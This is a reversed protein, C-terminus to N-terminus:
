WSSYGTPRGAVSQRPIEVVVQRQHLQVPQHARLVTDRDSIVGEVVAGIVANLGGREDGITQGGITVVLDVSMAEEPAQGGRQTRAGHVFKAGRPATVELKLEATIWRGIDGDAGERKALGGALIVQGIRIFPVVLKDIVERQGDAAVAELETPLHFVNVFVQVLRVVKAAAVVVGICAGEAC